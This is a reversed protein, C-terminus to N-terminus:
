VKKLGLQNKIKQIRKRISRAWRYKVPSFKNGSVLDYVFTYKKLKINWVAICDKTKLVYEEKEDEHLYGYGAEVYRLFLIEFLEKHNNLFGNKSWLDHIRELNYLHHVAMGKKKSQSLGMLSDERIRYNYLALRLLAIKKAYSVCAWHFFVDEYYLGAPFILNNKKLFESRFVKGWPALLMRLLWSDDVEKIEDKEFKCVFRKSTSDSNIKYSSFCAFDVDENQFVKYVSEFANTELWDDSDVFAILDGRAFELGTNRAAAAGQNSLSIVKLQPYKKQYSALIQASNDTSGDNICIVELNNYTQSFISDLCQSLYNEVNYVPVVISVLPSYM